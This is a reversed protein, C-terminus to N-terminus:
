SVSGTSAHRIRSSGTQKLADDRELAERALMDAHAERWDATIQGSFAHASLSRNTLASVLNGQIVADNIVRIEDCSIRFREVLEPSPMPM